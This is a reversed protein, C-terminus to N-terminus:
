RSLGLEPMLVWTFCQTHHPSSPIGASSLSSYGAAEYLSHAGARLSLYLRLCCSSQMRLFLLGGSMMHVYMHIQTCSRM